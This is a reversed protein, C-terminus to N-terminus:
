VAFLNSMISRPAHILLAESATKLSLMGMREREGQLGRQHTQAYRAQPPHDLTIQRNLEDGSVSM